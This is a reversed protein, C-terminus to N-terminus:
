VLKFSQTGYSHALNLFAVCLRMALAFFIDSVIFTEDVFALLRVMPFLLPLSNCLINLRHCGAVKVIAIHDSPLPQEKHLFEHLSHQLGLYQGQFHFIAIHLICEIGYLHTSINGIWITQGVAIETELICILFQQFSHPM